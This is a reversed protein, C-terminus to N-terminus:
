RPPGAGDTPLRVNFATGRPTSEATIEGGHEQIIRRGIALGLGTGEDMPKTTFFPDFIHPLAEDPIPPGDNRFAVTVGGDDPEVTAAVELLTGGDRLAQEANVVINLFVQQLQHRDATVPPLAAPISVEARIGQAELERRRMALTARVV